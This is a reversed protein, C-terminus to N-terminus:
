AKNKGTRRLINQFFFRVFFFVVLYASSSNIHLKGFFTAVFLKKPHTIDGGGRFFFVINKVFFFVEGFNPSFGFGGCFKGIRCIM